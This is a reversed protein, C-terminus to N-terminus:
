GVNQRKILEGNKKFEIGSEDVIFNSAKIYERIGNESNSFVWVGILDNNINTKTCSIFSLINIVILLKLIRM